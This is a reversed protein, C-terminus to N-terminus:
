ENKSEKKLCKYIENYNSVLKFDIENIIEEPIQDLDNKNEKPIFIKKVGNRHAGIVKEKLGGIPLVNGRLTIEGTFAIKNSIKLNSFASIIATTIATGASPGDKKTAGDVAHIHIDNNTLLEYDIGFKKYNSKIYSLAVTASEKIVDGLSGTLILNGNGKYYNVEIPLTDGGFKTYALGNVVGVSSKFKSLDVYKPNGLYKILDNETITAKSITLNNKILTTVIKRAINDFLRQLERVGSERTYSRILMLIVEDSIDISNEKLGANLCSNKILFKKAIELKELETYGSLNIIELRDRLADPIEEIYNATTIFLVNSLDFEEEIYNDSFIKNQESDLVELLTSAPDGKYNATMKDIEDILFVPNNSKARKMSQIIRGPNAGLYTRRHGILESEDNLGGVSIKVFNRNLARAISFALSTKGVGPPGVLCIISGSLSKKMKKVAIFEVFRQKVDELGYHSENLKKEVDSLNENDKTSVEWPLDLLWDIYNRVNSIEASSQPLSQYRNLEKYLREKINKKCKLKEIKNKLEDIESDTNENLQEKIEKLKEKLIFEKQTQEINNKVKSDIEKEVKFMDEEKYIDELIMECRKIVNTTLLYENLRDQELPLNPAIIDTLQSLSKSNKILSLVSNSVYPVTKVYKETESIIKRTYVKEQEILIGEDDIKSVISELSEDEVSLYDNVYVREKGVLTIRLNGNPLEIKNKINCEIGIKPLSNLNPKEELPDMTNVVLINSDHFLESLDIINKSSDNDFEIRLENHPLLIIGRLLLVPLNTKIM